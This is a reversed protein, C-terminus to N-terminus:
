NWITWLSKEREYYIGHLRELNKWVVSEVLFDEPGRHYDLFGDTWRGEILIHM